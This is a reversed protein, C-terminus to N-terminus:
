VQVQPFHLHPDIFGPLILHPRHDIEPLDPARLAAYDGIAAIKGNETIIAGDEHYTFANDTEQPDAHFSLTRARILQRM